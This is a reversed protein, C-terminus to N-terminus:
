YTYVSVAGFASVTFSTLLLVILNEFIDASLPHHLARVARAYFHCARTQNALKSYSEQMSSQTKKKASNIQKRWATKQIAETSELRQLYLYVASSNWDYACDSPMLGNEDPSLLVRQNDLAVLEKIIELPQWKAAHHLVNQANSDTADMQAGKAFLLDLVAMMRSSRVAHHVATHGHHDTRRLELPLACNLLYTLLSLNGRSAAYHLCTKGSNDAAWLDISDSACGRAFIDPTTKSSWALYHTISMGESDAGLEGELSSSSLVKQVTDNSIVHLPTRRAVDINALNAGEEILLRAVDYNNKTSLARHLPTEGDEDPANVDAGAAILIKVLDLNGLGSATHLPTIGHVTMDRASAQGRKLLRKVDEILGMRVYQFIDAQQPLIRQCDLNWSAALGKRDVISSYMFFCEMRLRRGCRKPLHVSVSLAFGLRRRNGDALVRILPGARIICQSIPFDVKLVYSARTWPQTNFLALADSTLIQVPPDCKRTVTRLHIAERYINAHGRPNWAVPLKVERQQQQGANISSPTISGEPSLQTRAGLRQQM